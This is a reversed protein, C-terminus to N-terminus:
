HAPVVQQATKLSNQRMKPFHLYSVEFFTYHFYLSVQTTKVGLDNTEVLSRHSKGNLSYFLRTVSGWSQHASYKAHPKRLYNTHALFGCVSSSKFILIRRQM